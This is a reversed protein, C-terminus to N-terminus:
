GRTYKRSFHRVPWWVSAAGVAVVTVFVVAMDQWRVSVPYSEFLYGAATDGFKVWGWRQQAWSLGVGLAIGLVAGAVAILRGETMFIGAILGEDAGLSRLTRANDRKDIILMSLSGVVNFCAIVLILTLFVYSIFKEIKMIRFTDEQQEFRDLVDFRGAAISGLRRKVGQVDAGERLRLEVGTVEGERGFLRRAFAISTIAYKADYKSQRVSFAVGPAYLVDSVFASSPDTVDVRGGGRPAWVTVPRESLPSVGLASLLNVGLVGYDLVDVHLRWEGEGVSMGAIDASEMFTDDVGKVTAVAQRPGVTLLANDEVVECVSAVAADREMSRLAPDSASVYKGERPLVKLDPDFATFLGGVMDEFGNFVSLICVMAATAVAVGVVSVASIINIAHHSKPAFLYRCAIRTTLGMGAGM